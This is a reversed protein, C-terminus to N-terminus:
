QWLIKRTLLLKKRRNNKVEKSWAGDGRWFGFGSNDGPSWGIDYIIDKTANTFYVLSNDIEESM